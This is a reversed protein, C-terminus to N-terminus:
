IPLQIPVGTRITVDNNYTQFGALMVRLRYTNPPISGIVFIGDTGSRTQTSYGTLASSLGVIANPAPLGSADKVTGKLTGAGGPSQASSESSGFLILAFIRMRTM